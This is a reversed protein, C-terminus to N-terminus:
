RKPSFMGALETPWSTSIGAAPPTPSRKSRRRAPTAFRGPRCVTSSIPIIPRRSISTRRQSAAALRARESRWATYSRRIPSRTSHAKSPSQRVRRRSATARRAQGDRKRRDLRPHGNRGSVKDAPGACSGELDRRCVEGADEGDTYSHVPADDGREFYYTEPMLSGERPSEKIDGVLVEDDRLRQVIQDSTLGEPITLKYRVVRHAILENEIETM